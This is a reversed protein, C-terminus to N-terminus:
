STFKKDIKKKIGEVKKAIDTKKESQIHEGKLRGENKFIDRGAPIELGADIGGKVAAFIRSSKPLTQLGRDVICSEIKKSKAKKGCIYGTLYAAPINSKAQKWGYADLEKSNASAVVEDGNEEYKIIQINMNSNSKRVVLRPKRSKLLSLRKKYDTKGERKRRYQVIYSVKKAM